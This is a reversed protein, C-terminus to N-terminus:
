CGTLHHGSPESLMEWKFGVSCEQLIQIGLFGLTQSPLKRVGLNQKFLIASVESAIM